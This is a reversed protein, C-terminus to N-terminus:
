SARFAEKGKWLWASIAFFLVFWSTLVIFHISSSLWELAGYYGVTWLLLSVFQIFFLVSVARELGTNRWTASGLLLCGSLMSILILPINATSVDYFVQLKEAVGAIVAGEGAQTLNAIWNHRITFIEFSLPFLEVLFHILFFIFGTTALGPKNNIKAATVGWLALFQFFLLALSCWLRASFIPDDYLAIQEKLTGAKPYAYPMIWVLVALIGAAFACIAM